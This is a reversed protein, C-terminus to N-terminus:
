KDSSGLQITASACSSGFKRIGLGPTKKGRLFEKRKGQKVQGHKPRLDPAEGAPSERGLGLAPYWQRMMIMGGKRHQVLAWILLQPHFASHFLLFLSYAASNM